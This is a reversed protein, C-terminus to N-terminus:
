SEPGILELIREHVRGNTALVSDSKRPVLREGKWNTIKGGAEELVLIGAAYDWPQLNLEFFGDLRGCAVYAIDLAASGSRRVELSQLFVREVIEFTRHAEDRIYPTTGFGILCDKLDAYGSVNIGTGNLYAGKGAEAAFMEGNYPNYIFGLKPKGEVFLALSVASYMFRRMLNTTGDVPDLIWTPKDLNFSNENSEETIINCGPMIGSLKDLLYNQVAYDVQTVYNADGKQMILSEDMRPIFFLKGAEKVANEVKKGIDSYNM